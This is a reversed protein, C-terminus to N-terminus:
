GSIEPDDSRASVSGVTSGASRRPNNLETRIEARLLNKPLSTEQRLQRLAKKAGIPTGELSCGTRLKERVANKASIRAARREEARVRSFRDVIAAALEPFHYRIGGLSTGVQTAVASLSPNAHAAVVEVAQLLTDRRLKRREGIKRRRSSSVDGFHSRNFILPQTTGRVTGQLLELVPINLAESIRIASALTMASAGNEIRLYGAKRLMREFAEHMGRRHMEGRVHTLVREPGGPKFRIDGHTAVYAILASGLKAEYDDAIDSWDFHDLPENCRVCRSVDSRSGLSDQEANCIPCRDRLRIRHDDCADQDLLQWRLRLYTPAGSLRSETLCAPCWRLRASYMWVGRGLAKDLCLLTMRALDRRETGLAKSITDVVAETTHSPRIFASLRTAVIGRHSKIHETPYHASSVEILRGVSTAHAQALRILYSSLAEVRPTGAGQIDVPYLIGM